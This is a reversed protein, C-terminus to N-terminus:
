WIPEGPENDGFLWEMAMELSAGEDNDYDANDQILDFLAGEDRDTLDKAIQARVQAASYGLFRLQHALTGVIQPHEEILFVLEDYARRFAVRFKEGKLYKEELLTITERLSDNEEMLFKLQAEVADNLGAM